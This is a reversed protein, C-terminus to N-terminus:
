LIKESSLIDEILTIAKSSHGDVHWAYLGMPILIHNRSYISAVVGNPSEILWECTNRNDTVSELPRGLKEELQKYTTVVHGQLSIGEFDTKNSNIRM